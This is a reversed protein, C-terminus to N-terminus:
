WLSNGGRQRTIRNTIYVLAFCVASNFLGVATSYSYQADVLGRRYVYTNIVDATQYTLPTYLLMIKEYGVDFMKGVRLIFMIVITPALGPITVHLIQNWKNAGDIKAAEYLEQDIATLASLYVISNWGVTQWVDSVVYIPVFYQPVYLMNTMEMGTLMSLIQTIGGSRGVMQTIIGCIVVTSIFHPVYTVTQVVRSFTKSRLENILLALIIAAPFSFVLTSVSIRITNFLLRFFYPDSFFNIFHKFGVFPSGFIGRAPKFDEFAIILGAMPGYKFILFYLVPILIMLYLGWNKKFDKKLRALFPEKAALECSEIQAKKTKM